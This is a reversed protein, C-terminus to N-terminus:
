LQFGFMDLEFSFYNRMELNEVTEKSISGQKFYFAEKILPWELVKRKEVM